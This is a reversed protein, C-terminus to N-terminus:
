ALFISHNVPAHTNLFMCSFPTTRNGAAFFFKGVAIYKKVTRNKKAAEAEDNTGYEVALGNAIIANTEAVSTRDVPQRNPTAALTTTTVCTM